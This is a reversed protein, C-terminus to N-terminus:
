LCAETRRQLPDLRAQGKRLGSAVWATGERPLPGRDRILGREAPPRAADGEECGCGWGRWHGSVAGARAPSLAKRTDTVGEPQAGARRTVWLGTLERPRSNKPRKHAPPWPSFDQVPDALAGSFALPRPVERLQGSSGENGSSAPSPRPMDPTVCRLHTELARAWGPM